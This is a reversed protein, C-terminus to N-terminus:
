IQAKTGQPGRHREALGCGSRRARWYFCRDSPSFFAAGAAGRAPVALVGVAGPGAGRPAVASAAAASAAALGPIPAGGRGAANAAVRGGRARARRALASAKGSFLLVFLFVLFLFCSHLPFGCLFLFASPWPPPAAAVARAGALAKPQPLPRLLARQKPDPKRFAHFSVGPFGSCFVGFGNGAVRVFGESSPPLYVSVLSLVLFFNPRPLSKLTQKSRQREPPFPPFYLFALTNSHKPCRSLSAATNSVTPTRSCPPSTM